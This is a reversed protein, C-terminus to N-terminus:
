WPGPQEVLEYWKERWRPQIFSDPGRLAVMYDGGWPQDVLEMVELKDEDYGYVGQARGAENARVVDGIKFKRDPM